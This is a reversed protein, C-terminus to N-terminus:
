HPVQVGGKKKLLVQVGRIVWTGILVGSMSM